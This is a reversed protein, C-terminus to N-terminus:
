DEDDSDDDSDDDSEYDTQKDSDDRIKEDFVNNSRRCKILYWMLIVSFLLILKIKIFNFINFYLQGICPTNNHM